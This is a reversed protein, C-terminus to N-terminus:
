STASRGRPRFLLATVLAGAAYIAAWWFATRFSHMMGDALVAASPPVTTAHETVWAAAATTALTNLVATGVAGGVQQSTSVLASAVGAHARDVGLTATQIASPMSAGMGM